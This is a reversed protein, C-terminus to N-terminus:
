SIGGGVEVCDARGAVVAWLIGLVIDLPRTFFSGKIIESSSM